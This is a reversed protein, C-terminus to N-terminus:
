HSFGENTERHCLNKGFLASSNRRPQSKNICLMQYSKLSGLSDERFAESLVPDGEYGTVNRGARVV